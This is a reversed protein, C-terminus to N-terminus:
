YIFFANGLAFKVGTWAEKVYNFFRRYLPGRHRRKQANLEEEQEESPAHCRTPNQCKGPNPCRRVPDQAREAPSQVRIAPNQVRGAPGQIGIRSHSTEQQISLQQLQQPQQQQQQVMPYM